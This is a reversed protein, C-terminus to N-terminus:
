HLAAQMAPVIKTHALWHKKLENNRKWELFQFSYIRSESIMEKLKAAPLKNVLSEPHVRIRYLVENKIINGVGAFYGTGAACRLGNFGATEKIKVHAEPM